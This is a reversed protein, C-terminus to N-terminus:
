RDRARRGPGIGPLFSASSTPLGYGSTGRCRRGRRATTPSRNRGCAARASSGAPGLTAAGTWGHPVPLESLGYVSAQPPLLGRAQVELVEPAIPQAPRLGKLGVLYIDLQCQVGRSPSPQLDAPPPETPRQPDAM